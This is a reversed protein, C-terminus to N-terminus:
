ETPMDDEYGNIFFVLGATNSGVWVSEGEKILFPSGAGGAVENSNRSGVDVNPVILNTAAVSGGDKVIHVVAQLAGGTNNSAYLHFRCRRDVPCLYIQEPTASAPTLHDYVTSPATM